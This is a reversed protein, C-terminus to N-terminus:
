TFRRHFMFAITIIIPFDGKNLRLGMLHSNIELGVVNLTGYVNGFSQGTVKFKEKYFHSYIIMAM